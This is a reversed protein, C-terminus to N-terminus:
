HKASDGVVSHKVFSDRAAGLLIPRKRYLAELKADDADYGKGEERAIELENGLYENKWRDALERDIIRLGASVAEVIAVIAAEM